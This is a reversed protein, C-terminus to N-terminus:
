LIDDLLLKNTLILKRKRIAKRECELHEITAAALDDGLNERILKLETNISDILNDFRDVAAEDAARVEKRLISSDMRSYFMAAKTQNSNSM